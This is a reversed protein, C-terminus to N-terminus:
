YSLKDKQYKAAKSLHYDYMVDAYPSTKWYRAVSEKYLQYIHFSSLGQLELKDTFYVHEMVNEGCIKPLALRFEISEVEANHLTVSCLHHFGISLNLTTYLVKGNLQVNTKLKLKLNKM